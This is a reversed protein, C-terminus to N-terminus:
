ARRERQATVGGISAAIDTQYALYVLYEFERYDPHLRAAASNGSFRYAAWHRLLESATPFLLAGKERHCKGCLPMALGDVGVRQVAASFLVGEHQKAARLFTLSLPHGLRLRSDDFRYAVEIRLDTPLRDYWAPEGPAPKPIMKRVADAVEAYLGFREFAYLWALGDRSNREGRFWTAECASCKADRQRVRVDFENRVSESLGWGGRRRRKGERRPPFAGEPLWGAFPGPEIFDSPKAWPLNPLWPLNHAGPGLGCYLGIHLRRVAFRRASACHGGGPLASACRAFDRGFIEYGEEVKSEVPGAQM